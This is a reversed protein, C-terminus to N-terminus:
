GMVKGAGSIPRVILIVNDYSSAPYPVGAQTFPNFSQFDYGAFTRYFASGVASGGAAYLQFEVVVSSVTPNTFGCSTRYVSNNTLDQILLLRSTDATNSDTPRLGPFTKSYNGNRVRASVQITHSADQTVLEVAGVRGYYTFATDIVSLTSLFNTSKFSRGAGGTNTWVTFPGRRAGGGYSFYASVVSGGTLDTIQIATMWTGGGYASAWICEPVVIDSAPSNQLTGQYQVAPHAAPDNSRNNVTSGFGVLAGSGSTPTIVLHVNDSLTGPYPVGAQTFPNFSQFDYGALTRSFASGLTAGSANRLRFEATVSNPTPNFFGASTRYSYNNSLNQILLPQSLFATNAPAPVLGQITRSVSGNYTRGVVQIKHNADQTVFEVAGVRGYYSFGTDVTGLYSLFNSFKVSRKDGGSNNWVYIPGRRVGGGCSFYASVWSGGTVDTIQVESVWAGGGTASAWSAEPLVVYAAAYNFVFDGEQHVTVTQGAVILYGTRPGGTNRAFTFQVTGNGTGPSGSDITIWASQSVASWACGAGATVAVSSSGETEPVTQLSPTINYTCGNSAGVYDQIVRNAIVDSYTRSGPSFTYGSRVPTVTGSWGSYVADSYVGSAPTTPGSPLGTLTVSSLGAGTPTRVTGTIIPQVTSTQMVYVHVYIDNNAEWAYYRRDETRSVAVDPYTSGSSQPVEGRGQWTGNLKNNFDVTEGGGWGGVQWCVYINNNREAMSPYHLLEGPSIAIPSSFSTGSGQVYYVIRTGDESLVPTWAIHSIDNSDVELCPYQQNFTDPWVHIVSSWSAGANRTRYVHSVQYIDLSEHRETWTAAVINTGIAIDTIKAGRGEGLLKKDEWVGNVRARSYVQRWNEYYWITFIDGAPTVEVRTADCRDSPGTDLTMPAGWAGGEFVRLKVSYGDSYIVYINNNQDTDIGCVQFTGTYVNNTNSLNIPASWSTGDRNGKAYFVDGTYLGSLELWVAHVYGQADVALRPSWSQTGPSNAINVGAAAWGSLVLLFSVALFYRRGNNAIM